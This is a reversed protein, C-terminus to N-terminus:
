WVLVNLMSNYSEQSNNTADDPRGFVCWSQPPFSGSIYVKQIYNLFENTASNLENSEMDWNRLEDVTIQIEWTRVCPLSLCCWIFDIWTPDKHINEVLHMKNEFKNLNQGYHFRCNLIDM